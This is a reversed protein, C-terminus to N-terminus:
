DSVVDETWVASTVVVPVDWEAYGAVCHGFTVTVSGSDSGGVGLRSLSGPSRVDVVGLVCGLLFPVSDYTDCLLRVSECLNLFM